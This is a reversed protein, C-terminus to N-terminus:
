SVVTLFIICIGIWKLWTSARRTRFVTRANQILVTEGAVDALAGLAPHAVLTLVLRIDTVLQTSVRAFVATHAVATRITDTVVAVTWLPPVAWDAVVWDCLYTVTQIFM